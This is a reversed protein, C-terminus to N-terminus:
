RDIYDETISDIESLDMTEFLGGDIIELVIENAGIINFDYKKVIYEICEWVTLNYHNRMNEIMVYNGFSSEHYVFDNFSKVTEPLEGEEKKENYDELLQYITRIDDNTYDVFIYDKKKLEELSGNNSTLCANVYEGFTYNETENSENEYFSKLENFTIIENNNDVNRFLREKKM